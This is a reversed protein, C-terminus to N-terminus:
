PTYTQPAWFASAWQEGSVKAAHGDLFMATGKGRHREIVLKRNEPTSYAQYWAHAWSMYGDVLFTQSSPWPVSGALTLLPFPDTDKDAFRRTATPDLPVYDNNQIYWWGNEQWDNWNANGTYWADTMAYGTMKDKHWQFAGDAQLAAELSKSVKTWSPCGWQVSAKSFDGRHQRTEDDETYPALSVNWYRSEDWWGYGSTPALYGEHDQAFGNSALSIQRQNSMCQTAQAAERVLQVAPLLLAALIAIISIV